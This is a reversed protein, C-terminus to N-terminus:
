GEKSALYNNKATLFEDYTETYVHNSSGRKELVYYLYNHSEPQVVALLSEKGPNSIPGIPLAPVKYTNYPSDFELDAYTVDEKVIGMAYLVTADMQLPMGRNLRNYIVGAARSREATVVIEKEVISAMTVFEDLTYPLGSSDLLPKMDTEYVRQFEQLMLHILTEVTDGEQLLYTQPFLYGELPMERDPTDALFEYEFKFNGTKTAAVFEEASAIGMEEVKSAIQLTTYGEPITIWEGEQMVVGTQLLEMIQSMTLGRDVQYSGQQYTGDFGDLRSQIRFMLVNPILNANHLITAISETSAGAPITIDVTDGTLVVASEEPFLYTRSFYFGGGMAAALLAITFFFSLLKFFFKKARRKRIDSVYEYEDDDDNDNYQERRNKSM